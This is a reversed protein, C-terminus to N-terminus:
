QVRVSDYLLASPPGLNGLRPTLYGVSGPAKAPNYCLATGVSLFSILKLIVRVTSSLELASPKDLPMSIVESADLDPYACVLERFKISYQTFLM